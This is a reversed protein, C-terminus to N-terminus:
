VNLNVGLALCLIRLQGENAPMLIDVESDKGSTTQQVSCGDCGFILNIRLSFIPGAGGSEKVFWSSEHREFGMAILRDETMPVEANNM